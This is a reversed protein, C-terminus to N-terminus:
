VRQNIQLFKNTTVLCIFYVINFYSKQYFITKKSTM